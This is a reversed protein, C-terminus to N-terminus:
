CDGSKRLEIMMSKALPWIRGVLTVRETFLGVEDFLAKITWRSWFKIHGHDWLATFHQDMKGSLALALNKAYGHYPTSIIAVGGPELLDFVAKAYKRPAYLHEVVELSVVLPYCGYLGALDDYASGLNFECNPYAARAHKIGQVSPDVGTVRWGRESLAAAVSGNGCGLDFVRRDGCNVGDVAELLAPLLYNHADSPLADEYRYGSLTEDRVM